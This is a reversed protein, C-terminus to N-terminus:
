GRGFGIGRVIVKGPGGAAGEIRIDAEPLIQRIAWANTLLHPSLATTTFVSEGEALALAPLIQDALHPDLAGDTELYDGLAACAEDAVREAPKGREGLAAFGARSGETEALLFLHTGPSPGEGEVVEIAVPVRLDRLRMEVRAQQREAITRPLRVVAATGRVARLTGRTLRTLPRLAGSAPRVMVRVEGGGKPYFGWRLLEVSAHLGAPALTPLLVGELYPVPPSWPVHTGGTITLTSVAGGWALPLLAAQLVLTVAGATGVAFRFSGAHVPGPAFRVATAGVRGGEVEARTIEGLAQLAVLHQAQLGPNRRGARINEIRVPRTLLASLSLATRLIQGGGEGYAGDIVTEM